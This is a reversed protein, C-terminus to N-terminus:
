VGILFKTEVMLKPVGIIDAIGFKVVEKPVLYKDLNRDFIKTIESVSKGTNKALIKIMEKNIRELESLDTKIENTQGRAGGSAQHIM